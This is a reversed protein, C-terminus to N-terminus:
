RGRLGDAFLLEEAVELVVGRAGSRSPVIFSEAPEVAYLHNRTVSQFHLGKSVISHLATQEYENLRSKQLEAFGSPAAPCSKQLGLFRLYKFDFRNM